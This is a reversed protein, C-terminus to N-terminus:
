VGGLGEVCVASAEIKKIIEMLTFGIMFESLLVLIRLYLGCKKKVFMAVIFLWFVIALSAAGFFVFMSNSPFLILFIRVLWINLFLVNPFVFFIFILFKLLGKVAGVLTKESKRTYESVNEFCQTAVVSECGSQEVDPISARRLKKFNKNSEKGYQKQLIAKEMVAVNGPNPADCWLCCPMDDEYREGCKPCIM